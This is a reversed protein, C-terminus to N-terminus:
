NGMHNPVVRFRIIQPIELADVRSGWVRDGAADHLVVGPPAHVKGVLQGREDLIDWETGDASGATGVWVSGDRAPILAGDTWGWGGNRVPPQHRPRFLHRTVVEAAAQTSRFGGPRTVREVFSSVWENVVEDSLPVPESPVFTTFRATGDANRAEVTYGYRSADLSRHVRLMYAGSPSLAFLDGDSWPQRAQVVAGRPLPVHMLANRVSITMVTDVARAVPRTTIVSFRSDSAAGGSTNVPTSIREIMILSGSSLVGRLRYGDAVTVQNWVTSVHVPGITRGVEGSRAFLTIRELSGDVVWLTDDYFGIWSVALFEGPGRGERGIAGRYMGTSDFVLVERRDSDAIYVEGVDSVILQRIETLAASDGTYYTREVELEWYPVQAHLVTRGPVMGVGSAVILAPRIASLCERVQLYRRCEFQM